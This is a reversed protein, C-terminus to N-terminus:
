GAEGHGYKDTLWKWTRGKRIHNITSQSVGYKKAMAHQTLKTENYIALVDEQTLKNRINDTGKKVTM